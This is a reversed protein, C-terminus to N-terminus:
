VGVKTGACATSPLRGAGRATVGNAAGGAAGVIGVETGVAVMARGGSQFESSVDVCSARRISVHTAFPKISVSILVDTWCFEAAIACLLESILAILSICALTGGEASIKIVPIGEDMLVGCPSITNRKIVRNFRVLETRGDSIRSIM